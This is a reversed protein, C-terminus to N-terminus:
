FNEVETGEFDVWDADYLVIFTPAVTPEPPALTLHFGILGPEPERWRGNNQTVGWRRGLAILEFADFAESGLDYTARGLLRTEIGHPHVVGPKWLNEGLLWEDSAARTEGRIELEVLDGERALVRTELGAAEIESTAYPLTQGRVNDVLHFRALRLASLAPVEHVDGVAPDEPLWARAEERTFWAFDRNWPTLQEAGPDGDEPVDRAIRELVLGGEPRSMEWRHAPVLGADEPLHRREEPLEQWAKWGRDLMGLVTDASLSNVHALLVGGATGVWIGQRTGKDTIPEGGNVMRQFFLCDADSGRQLRWVEDAAPM